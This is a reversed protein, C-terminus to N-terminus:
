GERCDTARRYMCAHPVGALSRRRKLHQRSGRRKQSTMGLRASAITHRDSLADAELMASAEHVERISRHTTSESEWSARASCPAGHASRLVGRRVCTEFSRRSDRGCPLAVGGICDRLSVVAQPAFISVCVCASGGSARQHSELLPGTRGTDDFGHSVLLGECSAVEASRLRQTSAGFGWRARDRLTIVRGLACRRGHAM